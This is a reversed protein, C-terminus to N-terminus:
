DRLDERTFFLFLLLLALGFGLVVGCAGVIPVDVMWDAIRNIKLEIM